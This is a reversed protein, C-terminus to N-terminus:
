IHISVPHLLAGTVLVAAAVSLSLGIKLSTMSAILTSLFGGAAATSLAAKALESALGTPAASVARAGLIAALATASLSIGKGALLGRLKELARSLRKQAADENTGLAAGVARLDRHEYFRLVIAQRDPETLQDIAEDLAPALQQWAAESPENLQNMEVAIQERAVRRRETRLLTSCVFCTHRHLWGGLSSDARLSPAKRALDTFVAQAADRALAHNGCMRRVAVSYVLDIHRCVIERFASESRSRRYERLLQNTDTM